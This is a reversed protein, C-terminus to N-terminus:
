GMWMCGLTWIILSGIQLALVFGLTRIFWPKPSLDRSARMAKALDTFLTWNWLIFGPEIGEQRLFPRVAALWIAMEVLITAMFFTFLIELGM